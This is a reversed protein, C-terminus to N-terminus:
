LELSKLVNMFQKPFDCFFRSLFFGLFIGHRARTIAVNMTHPDSLLGLKGGKESRVTSLLVYDWESGQATAISGCHVQPLGEQRLLDSIKPVQLVPCWGGGLPFFFVVIGLHACM